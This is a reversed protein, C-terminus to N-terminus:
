TGSRRLPPVVKQAQPRYVNLGEPVVSKILFVKDSFLFRRGQLVTGVSFRAESVVWVHLAFKSAGFRSAPYPCSNARLCVTQM